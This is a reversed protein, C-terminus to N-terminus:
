LTFNEIPCTPALLFDGLPAGQSVSPWLGFIQVMGSSSCHHLMPIANHGWKGDPADTTLEESTFSDQEDEVKLLQDDSVLGALDSLDPTAHSVAVSEATISVPASEDPTVRARVM